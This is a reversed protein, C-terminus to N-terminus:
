RPTSCAPSHPKSNDDSDIVHTHHPSVHQTAGFLAASVPTIHPQTIQHTARMKYLVRLLCRRNLSRRHVELMLHGSIMQLVLKGVAFGLSLQNVTTYQVSTLTRTTHTRTHADPITHSQVAPRTKRTTCLVRLLRWRNLGSRHVKLMLHRSIMQLVLKGMAFSLGLQNVTTHQVSTLTRHAYHAHTRTHM